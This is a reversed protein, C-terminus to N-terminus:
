LPPLIVTFTTGQALKSELTINGNLKEVGKKVLYLGLGSGNITETGRFYMDFVQSQISENIGIGNDEIIIKAQKNETKIEIKIFPRVCNNKQYKIANEVLNQLITEIIAKNSFFVESVSINTSVELGTYAPLHTFKNLIEETLTTFNIEDSFIDVDKIRMAKVLEGLTYDLKKTAIEIMDMYKKSVEEKIELKSVNVLGLVSALPGRIDHSAKYIFMKLEENTLKLREEAVKRETIDQAAVYIADTGNRKHYFSSVLVYVIKGDKRKWQREGNNIRKNQMVESIHSDINEKTHNIFDYPSILKLEEQSYGLLASLAPNSYLIQKTTPDIFYISMLSENIFTRMNKESEILAKESKVQETIDHCIGFLGVPFGADNFEFKSLSHIHRITGNKWVIRHKFSSDSHSSRSIEIEKQVNELDEPHIFSLWSELSQNNKEEPSIGYMRCAEESWIAQKTVFDSEWSGVKAVTQAQNLRSENYKLIKETEKFQTIDTQVGISGIVQGKRDLYPTGSILMWKKNGDKKKLQIEYKSIKKNKRDGIIKLMKERDASDLFLEAAIKGNLEKFDYGLLKCFSENAYQIKDYNDVILIGENMSEVIQEWHHKPTFEIMKYIKIAMLATISFITLLPVTVPVSNYNFLLPYLIEFLIGGTVPITIGFALWLARKNKLSRKETKFVHLWALLVMTLATLAVWIFIIITIVTPEPNAVWYVKNSKIISYEDYRAWMLIFFIIVPLYLLISAMRSLKGKHWGGLRLFLQIGFPLFILIFIGSIRNWDAASEIARSMKMFGDAMQWLALFLIFMSFYATTRTKDLFLFSYFFIIVNLCAPIISLFIIEWRSFDLNFLDVRM